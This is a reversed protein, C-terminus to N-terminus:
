IDQLKPGVKMKPSLWDTSALVLIVLDMIFFFVCLIAYWKMHSPHAWSFHRVAYMLVLSFTASMSVM